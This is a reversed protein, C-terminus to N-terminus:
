NLSVEQIRLFRLSPDVVIGSRLLSSLCSSQLCPNRIDTSATITKEMRSDIDASESTMSCM